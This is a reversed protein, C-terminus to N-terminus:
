NTPVAECAAELWVAAEEYLRFRMDHGSAARARTMSILGLQTNADSLSCTLSELTDDEDLSSVGEDQGNISKMIRKINELRLLEHKQANDYDGKKRYIMSLLMHYGKIETEYSPKATVASLAKDPQNQYLYAYVLLRADDAGRADKPQEEQQAIFEKELRDEAEKVEADNTINRIAYIHRLAKAHEGHELEYFACNRNGVYNQRNLKLSRCLVEYAKDKEGARWLIDGAVTQIHLNGKYEEADAMARVMDGAKEKEGAALLYQAKDLEYYPHWIGM